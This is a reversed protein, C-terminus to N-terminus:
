PQEKADNPRAEQAIQHHRECVARAEEASGVPGGLFEGKFSPRFLRTKDVRFRAIKYPPETDSLEVERGGRAWKM